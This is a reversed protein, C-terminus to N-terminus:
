KLVKFFEHILLEFKFFYNRSFIGTLSKGPKSVDRGSKYNKGKNFM